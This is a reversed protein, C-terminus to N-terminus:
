VKYLYSTNLFSILIEKVDGLDPKKIIIAKSKYYVTYGIIRINDKISLRFSFPM